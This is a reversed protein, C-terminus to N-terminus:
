TASSFITLSAASTPTAATPVACRPPTLAAHFVYLISMLINHKDPSLLTKLFNALTRQLLQLFSQLLDPGSQPVASLLAPFLSSLCFSLISLLLTQPLSPSDLANRFFGTLSALISARAPSLANSTSLFPQVANSVADLLPKLSQVGVHPLLSGSVALLLSVIKDALAEDPVTNLLYVIPPYLDLSTLRCMVSSPSIWTHVFFFVSVVPLRPPPLLLLLIGSTLEYFFVRLPKQLALEELSKVLATLIVILRPLDGSRSSLASKLPTILYSLFIRYQQVRSNEDLLLLHAASLM